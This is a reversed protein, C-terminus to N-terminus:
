LRAVARAAAARPALQTDRSCQFTHQSCRCIAPCSFACCSRVNLVASLAVLLWVARPAM